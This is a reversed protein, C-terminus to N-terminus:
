IKSNRVKIIWYLLKVKNLDTYCSMHNESFHAFFPEWNRLALHANGIDDRKTQFEVKIEKYVTYNFLKSTKASNKNFQDVISTTFKWDVKNLEELAKEWDSNVLNIANYVTLVWDNVYLYSANVFNYIENDYEIRKFIRMAQINFQKEDIENNLYKLRLKHNISNNYESPNAIQYRQPDSLLVCLNCAFEITTWKDKIFDFFDVEPCPTNNQRAKQVKQIINKNKLRDRLITIFDYYTRRDNCNQTTNQADPRPAQPNYVPHYINKTRYFKVMEGNTNNADDIKKGTRWNFGTKCMLCWMHDCNKVVTFDPLIFLNNENIRWGYYKDEKLEEVELTSLNLDVKPNSNKAKKREIKTPVESINGSINVCYHDNFSKINGQPLKINEKKVSSFNTVFGLSKSLFEIQKIISLNAMKIVFRKKSEKPVHGDTDILGALLNLRTKRDSTLYEIPIHKNKVLNFNKLKSKFPNQNSKEISTTDTVKLDCFKCVQKQCAKCDDCSSQGIASLGHSIGKRRISFKYADQHTLECNNQSCWELLYQIIEPDTDPNAAFDLGNNIGDGLWLGLMYSDLEEVINEYNIGKNSKFGYLIKKSKCDLFQEPNLLILDEFQNIFNLAETHACAKSNKDFTFKKSRFKLTKTDFWHVKYYTAKTELRKHQKSKLVLHHKSNVTYECGNSQKIKYLKDLGNFTELVTRKNGDDGVLLDGVKIDQSLKTTGDWMLIPTNEAFCGELKNIGVGCEPCPKVNDENKLLRLSALIDPNCTHNDKAAEKCDKCFATLCVNCRLNKDLFGKCDKANCASRFSTEQSTKTQTQYVTAALNNYESIYNKLIDVQHNLEYYIDPYDLVPVNHRENIEKSKRHYELNVAELELHQQVLLVPDKTNMDGYKAYIKQRSDLWHTENKRDQANKAKQLKSIGLDRLLNYYELEIEHIKVKMDSIQNQYDVIQDKLERYRKYNILYDSTEQMFNKERDFLISKVHTKYEKEIWDIPLYTRLFNNNWNAKCAMCQAQTKSLLFTKTCNVCSDYKCYPCSIVHRCDEACVNCEVTASSM